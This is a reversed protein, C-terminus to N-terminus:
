CTRSATPENQPPARAPAATSGLYEEVLAKIEDHPIPPVGPDPPRPRGTVTHFSQGFTVM